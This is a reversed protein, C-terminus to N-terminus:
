SELTVTYYKKFRSPEEAVKIKRYDVNYLRMVYNKPEGRIRKVQASLVNIFNQVFKKLQLDDDKFEKSKENYFAEIKLGIKRNIIVRTILAVFILVLACPFILEEWIGFSLNPVNRLLLRVAVLAFASTLFILSVFNVFDRIKVLRIIGPISATSSAMKVLTPRVKEWELAIERKLKGKEIATDVPRIDIYRHVRYSDLIEILEMLIQLDTESIGRM